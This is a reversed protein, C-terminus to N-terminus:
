KFWMVQGDFYFKVVDKHLIKNRLLLIFALEVTRYSLDSYM